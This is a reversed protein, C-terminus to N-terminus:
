LHEIFARGEKIDIATELDLGQMAFHLGVIEWSMLHGITLLTPEQFQFIQCCNTKVIRGSQFMAFSVKAVSDPAGFNQVNDLNTKLHTSLM